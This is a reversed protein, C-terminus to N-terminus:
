DGRLMAQVQSLPSNFERTVRVDVVSPLGSESARKLASRIENPDTVIEGYGGLSRAFEDLKRGELLAYRGSENKGTMLIRNHYVDGWSSDDMVVITIPIGHRAATEIEVGCMLFSGDGTVVYVENEPNALKAAIGMSIGTGIMGFPGHSWMVKGPCEPRLYQYAWGTTDGGDLVFISGKGAFDRLDRMLRQPRIPVDDSKAEEEAQNFYTDILKRVNSSWGEEKSRIEDRGSCSEILQEAVARADGWIGADVSRNKGIVTPDVDIHIVKGGESYFARNTGFGLFEDFRAGIAIVLDAYKTFIGVSAHAGYLPHDSPICGVALGETAVPAHILEALEVIRDCAGSWYAGSGAIIFPREAKAIIETANSIADPSGYVRGAPRYNEPSVESAQDYCTGSAVDRPIELLVPGMKGTMAHRAADQIYEELRGTEPVMRSYKTYKEVWSYANIEEFGMRDINSVASRGGIALVPSGAHYAQSLGPMINAIGPGVAVMVVGLTGTFRAWSDAANVAAQETRMSIIKIGLKELEEYIPMMWGDPLTFVYKVSESALAKAIIEAGKVM